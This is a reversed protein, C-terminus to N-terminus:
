GRATRRARWDEASQAWCDIELTAYPEPLQTRGRNASGVRKALTISRLNEPVITHTVEAWGLTDFAFDIAAVAAEYAYGRGAFARSVGWAIEPAPWGDPAHPGVRGVWRGTDREIVAFMSFGRMPWAGVMACFSRWALSRPQVGGLYRMTEEDAHFDAWADFDQPEHQRLILRETLLVPAQM